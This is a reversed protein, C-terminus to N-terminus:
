RRSRRTDARARTSQGVFRCLEPRFYTKRPNGEPDLEKSVAMILPQKMDKLEINYHDQMYQKFTVPPRRPRVPEAAADATNSPKAAPQSDPIMSNPNLNFM